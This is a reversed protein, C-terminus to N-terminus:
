KCVLRGIVLNTYICKQFEFHHHINQFILLSFIDKNHNNRADQSKILFESIRTVIMRLSILGQKHCRGRKLSENNSNKISKM